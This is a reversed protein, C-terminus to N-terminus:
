ENEIIMQMIKTVDGVSLSGNGDVDACEFSFDDVPVELIYNVTKTVDIISILGDINADGMLRVTKISFTQPLGIQDSKGVESYIIKDIRGQCDQIDISADAIVNVNMLLGSTGIVASNSPSVILFRYHGTGVMNSSIAHDGNASRETNFKSVIKGNSNTELSFGEPLILDFQLGAYNQNQTEFNINLTRKAGPAMTLEDAKIFDTRNYKEITLSSVADKLTMEVQDSKRSCKIKTLSMEYVGEAMAPDVEVPFTILAGGKGVILGNSLSVVILRYHGTSLENSSLSHDGEASREDNFKIDPKGNPRKVISVGEPLYIDCQLGCFIGEETEQDLNITMTGKGEVVNLTCDQLYMSESLSYHVPTLIFSVDDLVTKSADAQVMRVNSIGVSASQYDDSATVGLNILAGSTGSFPTLSMSTYVLRYVNASQKGITIKGRDTVRRTLSTNAPDITIGQPLTVDMQFGVYPTANDLGITLTKSTGPEIDSNTVLLRDAYASGFMPLLLALILIIRKFM